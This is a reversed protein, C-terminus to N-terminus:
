ARGTLTRGAPLSAASDFRATGALVERAEAVNEEALEYLGLWDNNIDGSAADQHSM